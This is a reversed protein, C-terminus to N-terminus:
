TRSWPRAPTAADDLQVVAIGRRKLASALRADGGWLRVVLNPGAALVSETTARRQPLGIARDRLLSDPNRARTSLAAIAERPALALVYQDACQDLSFVRPSAQAPAALSLALLLGLGRRAM